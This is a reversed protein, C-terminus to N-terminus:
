AESIKLNKIDEWFLNLKESSYSLYDFVSEDEFEITDLPVESLTYDPNQDLFENRLEQDTDVPTQIIGWMAWFASVAPKWDRVAEMLKKVQPEVIEDCLETVGQEVYSTIFREQEEENPYQDLWIHHPMTSHHYDGMWECFHNAIDYAPYNPGSYEFDIVVLQRHENQPQLLPSGKPPELRLINGYQTDNHCFVLNEGSYKKELYSQYARVTSLFEDFSSTHMVRQFTGPTKRELAELQNRAASEWNWFNSWICCGESIQEESLPLNSHLDRMRKAIQISTEPTRLDLRTIPKANLFQEFRGNKFTGMLRPGINHKTLEAVIKLEKERDILLDVQPGYVRLLLVPPLRHHYPRGAHEQKIMEKVYRPPKVSYVSNTLAGSIRTMDLEMAMDITVPSWGPIRLRHILRIVDQRFYEFPLHDDLFENAHYINGDSTVAAADDGSSHPASLGALSRLSDSSKRRPTRPWTRPIM